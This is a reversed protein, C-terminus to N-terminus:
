QAVIEVRRNLQRGKESDNVSLPAVPGVGVARLRESAVQHDSVLSSVVAEARRASLKLNYEYAGQSDTHGVVFVKLEPNTELAKAIEMITELSEPALDASDLAFRIGYLAVSGTREIEGLMEDASVFTLTPEFDEIELIEVHIFPRNRIGTLGGTVMFVSFMSVHLLSDDKIVKGYLYVPDRYNGGLSYMTAANRFSVPIRNSKEWIVGNAMNNHCDAGVCSWIEEFDGLGGFAVKYNRLIQRTTHDQQGIYLIRTRKGEPQAVSPTYGGMETIFHGQDFQKRDYGAIYSGTVRSLDPYDRSGPMDSEQAHVPTATVILILAFRFYRISNM